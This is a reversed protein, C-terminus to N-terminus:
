LRTYKELYGFPFNEECYAFKNEGDIQADILKITTVRHGDCDYQACSYSFNAKPLTWIGWNMTNLYALLIRVNEISLDIAGKSTLEEYAERVKENRRIKANAQNKEALSRMAKKEATLMNCLEETTLNTEVIPQQLIDALKNGTYERGDIQWENMKLTSFLERYVRKSGDAQEEIRYVVRKERIIKM